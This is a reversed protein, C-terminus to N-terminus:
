GVMLSELREAKTDVKRDAMRVAMTMVTEVVWLDAWQLEMMGAMM